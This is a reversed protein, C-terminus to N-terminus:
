CTSTAARNANFDISYRGGGWKLRQSIGTGSTFTSNTVQQQGGSLQTTSPNTQSRQALSLNLSPTYATRSEAAAFDAADTGLRAEAVRPNRDLARREAEDLTINIGSAPTTTQAALPAAAAWFVGSALLMIRLM